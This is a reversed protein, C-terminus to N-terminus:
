KRKSKIEQRRMPMADVIDFIVKESVLKYSRFKEGGDRGILVLAFSSDAPVNWTAFKNKNEKNQCFQEIVIDREQMESKFHSFIEVQKHLLACEGAAFVLLKRPPKEMFQFIIFLLCVPAKFYM